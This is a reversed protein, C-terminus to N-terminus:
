LWRGYEGRHMWETQQERQKRCISTSSKVDKVIICSIHTYGLDKALRVRNNGCRAMYVVDADRGKPPPLMGPNYELMERWKGITIPCVVIPHQMGYKVISQGVNAYFVDNTVNVHCHVDKVPLIVTDKSIKSTLIQNEM